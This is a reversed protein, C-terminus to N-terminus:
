INLTKFTQFIMQVNDLRHCNLPRSPPCCRSPRKDCGQLPLRGGQLKFQQQLQHAPLAQHRDRHLGRHHYTSWLTACPGQWRGRPPPPSGRAPRRLCRTACQTAPPSSLSMPPSLLPTCLETTLKPMPKLRPSPKLKPGM